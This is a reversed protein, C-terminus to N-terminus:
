REEKKKHLAEKVANKAQARLEESTKKRGEEIEGPAATIGNAGSAQTDTLADKMFNGGKKAAAQAARFTMEQATCPHEGYKAEHVTEEDFLHAIEDIEFLRGREAAAADNVAVTNEAAAAARVESEVQAALEPNENRLEELNKAMPIKGGKDNSDADASKIDIDTMVASITPINDPVSFGRTPRFLRGNVFVAQRDESAAIAAGDEQTLVDAFGQEVAEKGTMYTTDSMMHSIVTDSKKCKRSYISIQAKDYADNQQARSRLEDATFEGFVYAWCKHIMVLSSPNVVVNDCACMILSGGSMAVGDVICTLEVGNESLERLRNHILISVRADGGVSNMRITLRKVGKKTVAELDDLFEEQIIYAGPIPENTWFDRPQEEVIEGYMTIEAGDKGVAAMTYCKQQETNM